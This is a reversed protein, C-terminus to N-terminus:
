FIEFILFFIDIELNYIGFIVFFVIVVFLVFVKSFIRTINDRRAKRRGAVESSRGEPSVVAAHSLSFPECSRRKRTIQTIRTRFYRHFRHFRHSKIRTIRSIRTRFYRLEIRKTHLLCRPQTPYDYRFPALNMFWLRPIFIGCAHSISVVLTPYLFWLRPIYFGCAHSIFTIRKRRCM